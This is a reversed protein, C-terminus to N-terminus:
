RARGLPRPSSRDVYWPPRSGLKEGSPLCSANTRARTFSASVSTPEPGTSRMSTSPRWRLRSGPKARTQGQAPGAQDGFPRLIADMLSVVLLLAPRDFESYM